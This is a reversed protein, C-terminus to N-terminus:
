TELRLPAQRGTANATAAWAAAGSAARKPEAEQQRGPSMGGAIVAFIMLAAFGALM